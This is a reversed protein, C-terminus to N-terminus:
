SVPLLSLLDVDEAPRTAPQQHPCRYKPSMREYYKECYEAHTVHVVQVGRARAAREEARTDYMQNWADDETNHGTWGAEVLGFQCGCHNLFVYHHRESKPPYGIARRARSM